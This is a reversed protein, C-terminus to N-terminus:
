NYLNQRNLVIFVSPASKQLYSVTDIWNLLDFPVVVTVGTKSTQRLDTLLVRRRYLKM